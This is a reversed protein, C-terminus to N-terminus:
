QRNKNRCDLKDRGEYVRIGSLVATSIDFAMYEDEDDFTWMEDCMSILYKRIEKVGDEELDAFRDFYIQPTIPTHGMKYVLRTYAIANETKDENGAPCSIYIIL